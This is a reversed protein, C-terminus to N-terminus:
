RCCNRPKGSPNKPYGVRQIRTGQLGETGERCLGGRSGRVKELARSKGELDKFGTMTEIKSRMKEELLDVRDESIFAM